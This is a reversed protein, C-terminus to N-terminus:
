LKDPILAFGKECRLFQILGVKHHISSDTKPTVVRRINKILTKSFTLANENPQRQGFKRMANVFCILILFYNCHRIFWIFYESMHCMNIKLAM